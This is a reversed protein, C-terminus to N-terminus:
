LMAFTGAANQATANGNEENGLILFVEDAKRPVGFWSLLIWLCQLFNCLLVMCVFAGEIQPGQNIDILVKSLGM